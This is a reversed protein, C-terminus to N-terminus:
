SKLSSDAPQECITGPGRAGQLNCEKRLEQIESAMLQLQSQMTAMQPGIFVHYILRLITNAIRTKFQALLGNGSALIGKPRFNEQISYSLRRREQSIADTTVADRERHVGALSWLREGTEKSAFTLYLSSWDEHGELCLEYHCTCFGEAERWHTRVRLHQQLVHGGGLVIAQMAVAASEPLNNGRFVIRGSVLHDLEELPEHTVEHDSPAESFATAGSADRAANQHESHQHSDFTDAALTLQITDICSQVYRELSHSAAVAQARGCLEAFQPAEMQAYAALKNALEIADLPHFLEGAGQLTEPLAGFCSALVPKGHILAERVPLSYGEHLSPIVVVDADSYAQDLAAQSIRGLMRFRAGLPISLGLLKQQYARAILDNAGGVHQVQVEVGQNVLRRAAEILVEFNKHPFLQGVTLVRLPKRDSLPLETQPKSRTHGFLPVVRRNPAVYGTLRTYEELTFESAALVWTPRPMKRLEGVARWYCASYMDNQMLLAPTLGQYFLILPAALDQLLEHCINFCGFEVFVLDASQVTALMEASLSSRDAEWGAGAQMLKLGPFENGGVKATACIVSVRFGQKLLGAV